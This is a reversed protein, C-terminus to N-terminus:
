GGGHEADEGGRSGMEVGGVLRSSHKKKLEKTTPIGYLKIKHFNQDTKTKLNTPTRRKTTQPTLAYRGIGGDQSSTGITHNEVKHYLKWSITLSFSVTM